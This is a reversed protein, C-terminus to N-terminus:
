GEGEFARRMLETGEEIDLLSIVQQFVIQVNVNGDNTRTLLALGVRKVFTKGIELQETGFVPWTTM